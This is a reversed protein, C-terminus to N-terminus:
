GSTGSSSNGMCLSTDFTCTVPDCGLSGGANGLSECTFGNLNAGDCQENPDIQGNGCGAPDTTQTQSTQTSTTSTDIDGTTTTDPLTTSTPGQTTPALTTSTTTDPGTTPDGTTTSTGPAGTSTDTGSSTDTNNNTNSNQGATSFGGPGGDDGCAPVLCLLSVSCALTRWAIM